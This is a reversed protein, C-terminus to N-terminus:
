KGLSLMCCLHYTRLPILSILTKLSTKCTEYSHKSDTYWYLDNFYNLLSIMFKLDILFNKYIPQNKVQNRTIYELM